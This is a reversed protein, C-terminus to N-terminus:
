GLVSRSKTGSELSAPASRAQRVTPTGATCGPFGPSLWGAMRGDQRGRKSEASGTWAPSGEGSTLACFACELSKAKM